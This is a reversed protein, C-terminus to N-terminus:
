LETLKLIINYSFVIAKNLLTLLIITLKITCFLHIIYFEEVTTQHLYAIM